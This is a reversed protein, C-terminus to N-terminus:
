KVLHNLLDALVLTQHRRSYFQLSQRPVTGLYIGQEWAQYYSRIFQITGEIDDRDFLHGTATEALIAAADSELPGFSLIPCGSAMYEYLKGTIMGRDYRAPEIVFFLMASQRMHRIAESHPVYEMHRTIDDLGHQNLSQLVPQDARGILQLRLKTVEGQLRLKALARWLTVPNRSAYLSGVYSLLFHAPDCVDASRFDQFDFGNHIVVVAKTAGSCVKRTLMQRWSPSVTTVASANRLVAKELLADFKLAARSHPLEAYYNIDVWPDRFDAIWPTETGAHLAWGILHTSHPPGTTLLADIQEGDLIRRGRQLAFPIWGLRADPLFLNARVWRALREKRNTSGTAFSGLRIAQHDARSTFRAYCRFPDPARTRYVKTNKPVDELLSVDREPYAGNRTTLVIPEWGFDRLYCVFKLSRQVGPGGAPPFYYTIILIKKLDLIQGKKTM